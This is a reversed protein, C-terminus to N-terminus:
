PLLNEIKEAYKHLIGYKKKLFEERSEITFKAQIEDILQKAQKIKREDNIYLTIPFDLGQSLRGLTKLLTFFVEESIFSDIKICISKEQGYEFVIEKSSFTGLYSLTIAKFKNSHLFIEKIGYPSCIYIGDTKIIFTEETIDQYTNILQRRYSSIAIHRLIPYAFIFILISFFFFLESKLAINISALLFFIFAYIGVKTDTEKEGYFYTHFKGTNNEKYTWGEMQPSIEFITKESEPISQYYLIDSSLKLEISIFPINGLTQSQNCHKEGLYEWTDKLFISKCSACFVVEDGEVIADGTIPDIRNQALLEKHLDAHLIYTNM